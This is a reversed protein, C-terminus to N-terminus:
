DFPIDDDGVPPESPGPPNPVTEKGNYVYNVYTEAMQVVLEPSMGRSEKNVEALAVVLLTASHVAHSRFERRQKGDWDVKENGSAPQPANQPPQQAQPPPSQGGQPQAQQPAAGQQVQSQFYAKTDQSNADYKVSWICPVNLLSQQPLAVKKTGSFLVQVSQGADDVLDGLAYPGFQGQQFDYKTPTGRMTIYTGPANFVAQFNM